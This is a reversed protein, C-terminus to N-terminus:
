MNLRKPVCEQCQRDVCRGPGCCSGQVIHIQLALELRFYLLRPILRLSPPARALPSGGASGMRPGHAAHGGAPLGMADRVLLAFGAPDPLPMTSGTPSRRQAPPAPAGTCSAGAGPSRACTAAPTQYGLVKRPRDNLTKPRSTASGATPTSM